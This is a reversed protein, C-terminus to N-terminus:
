NVKLKEEKQAQIEMATKMVAANVYDAALRLVIMAIAYSESEDIVRVALDQARKMLERVSIDVNAEFM